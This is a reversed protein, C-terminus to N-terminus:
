DSTIRVYTRHIWGAKCPGLYPQRTPQPTSTNCDLSKPGYVVGFWPGRDECITVADGNHLRDIERYPRGGPGSRVSLFGDGQPDLGVIRGSGTCADLEADGGIVLPVDMRSGAEAPAPRQSAPTETPTRPGATAPHSLPLAGLFMLGIGARM